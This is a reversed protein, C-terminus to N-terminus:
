VVDDWDPSRFGPLRGPVILGDPAGCDFALRFACILADCCIHFSGEM